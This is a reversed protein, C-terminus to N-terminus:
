SLLNPLPNPRRPFRTIHSPEIGNGRGDTYRFYKTPWLQGTGWKQTGRVKSTLIAGNCLQIRHKVYNNVSQESKYTPHDGGCNCEVTRPPRPKQKPKQLKTTKHVNTHKRQRRTPAINTDNESVRKPIIDASTRNPKILNTDNTNISENTNNTNEINNM